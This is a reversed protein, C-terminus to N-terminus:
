MFGIFSISLVFVPISILVKNLKSIMSFSKYVTVIIRYFFLIIPITICIALLDVYSFPKSIYMDSLYSITLGIIFLLFQLITFKIYKM